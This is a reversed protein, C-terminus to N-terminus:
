PNSAVATALAATDTELDALATTVPALEAETAGNAMAADVAAQVKTVFTSILLTASQVVGRTRAVQDVVAAPITSSM